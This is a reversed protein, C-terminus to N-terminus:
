PMQPMMVLGKSTSTRRPATFFHTPSKSRPVSPLTKQVLVGIIRNMASKSRCRSPYRSNKSHPPKGGSELRCSAAPPRPLGRGPFRHRPVASWFHRVAHQGSRPRKARASARRGQAARPAGTEDAPARAEEARAAEQHSVTTRQGLTRRAVATLSSPEAVM